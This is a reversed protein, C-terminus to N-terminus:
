RVPAVSEINAVTFERQANRLHCWSDLWKGYLRQPQIERVSHGGTRTRYGIRVDREREIADALLTLEADDLAPNLEALRRVIDADGGGATGTPDALLRAALEAAGVKSRATPRVARPPQDARHESREEVVVVGTADEAVPSFGAGRLRTLVEDLEIPSALVTPALQALQLKALSRTRLIETATAEDALVCSRMGRVRVTGHRRAVDRVLYELPQPLPRDSMAALNAILQDATWGADLASRVSAPSFRWVAATGASESVAAVSLTRAVAASPQGSVVATLDSQLIVTSPMAVLVGTVRAALETVQDSPDAAVAVLVAGCESLADAEVVGLLEAERVAAAVKVQRTKPDYGHMPFFWEIHEGASRVSVGDGAARLLARRLAGALSGLPLPPPVEKDGDIERSTPAHALEFWAVALAAWQDAPQASRWEGYRETPAYGATTRSMLGAAAALDLVMLVVEGPLASRAALRTRERLGVGGKKLATIGNAAAEDLLTGVARLFDQAASLGTTTRRAPPLQPPGTLRREQEAVWAAVAVERPLEWSHNVRLALGSAALAREAPNGATRGGFDPCYMGRRMLELQRRVPEPLGRLRDIVSRVDSLAAVLLATVEPKRLGAPHTGLREAASRLDEALVFQAIRAAPRGGGIEASWHATLREPLHVTGDGVWALGRDCLDDLAAQVAATPAGLLGAVDPVTASAGLAAVAQGVVMADRNVSQLAVSLSDPGCLRQALQEFGRPVPEMRVDPRARLLRTLRTEGSGALFDAFSNAGM